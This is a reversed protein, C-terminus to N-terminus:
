NELSIQIICQYLEHGATNLTTLRVLYPGNAWQSLNANGLFGDNVPQTITRGLLNAWQGNTQPGNAELLYGAFDSTNASGFFEISGSVIAGNRPESFNLQLSCAVATTPIIEPTPSAAPLAPNNPDATDGSGEAAPAGPQSALTITPVFPPTVSPQPSSLPTPSALPTAFIDPTPTPPRLLSPPLTPAVQVNVFYIIGIVSLMAFIFLLANNRMQIGRERELGFVAQRLIRRSRIYESVYWFLVMAALIYLWVDNRLIFLYIREM